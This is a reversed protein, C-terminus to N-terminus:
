LSKRLSHFLEAHLLSWCHFAERKIAFYCPKPLTGVYPFSDFISLVQLTSKYGRLLIGCVPVSYHGCPCLVLCEAPLISPHTESNAASQYRAMDLAASWRGRGSAAALAELMEQLTSAQQMSHAPEGSEVRETKPLGTVNVLKRLLRAAPNLCSSCCPLPTAALVPSHLSAKM